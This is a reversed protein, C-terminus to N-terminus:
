LHLWLSTTVWLNYVFKMILHWQRQLTARLCESVFDLCCSFQGSISTIELVTTIFFLSALETM